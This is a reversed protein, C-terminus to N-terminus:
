LLEQSGRPYRLIESQQVHKIPFMHSSELKGKFLAVVIPLVAGSMQRLLDGHRQDIHLISLRFSEDTIGRGLKRMSATTITM